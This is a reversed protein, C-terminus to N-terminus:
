DHGVGGMLEDLRNLDRAAAKRKTSFVVELLFNEFSKLKEGFKGDGADHHVLSNFFDLYDLWKSSRFDNQRKAEEKPVTTAYPAISNLFDGAQERAPQRDSKHWAFFTEEMYMLYKKLHVDIKGTWAVFDVSSNKKVRDWKDLLNNVESKYNRQSDSNQKSIPLSPWATPMSKMLERFSLASQYVREPNDRDHLVKLGGYFMQELNSNNKKLINQIELQSKTLVFGPTPNPEISPDFDSNM